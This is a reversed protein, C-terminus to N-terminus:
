REQAEQWHWWSTRKAPAEHQHRKSSGTGSAEQWQWQAPMNQQVNNVHEAISHGEMKPVEGIAQKHISKVTVDVLYM